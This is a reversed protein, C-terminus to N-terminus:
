WPQFIIKPRKWHFRPNHHGLTSMFYTLMREAEARDIWDTATYINPTGRRSMDDDPNFWFPQNRLTELVSHVYAIDESFDALTAGADSDFGALDRELDKRSCLCPGFSYARRGPRAKFRIWVDGWLQQATPDVAMPEWCTVTVRKRNRLNKM